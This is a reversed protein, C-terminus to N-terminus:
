LFPPPYGLSHNIQSPRITTPPLPHSCLPQGLPVTWIHPSPPGWDLDPAFLPQYPTPLPVREGPLPGWPAPTRAPDPNTLLVVGRRLVLPYARHGPDQCPRPSSSPPTPVWIGPSLLSTLSSETRPPGEPGEALQTQVQSPHPQPLTHSVVRLGPTVLPQNSGPLGPLSPAVWGGRTSGSRLTPSTLARATGM